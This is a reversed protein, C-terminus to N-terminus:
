EEFPELSLLVAEAHHRAALAAKWADEDHYGAEPLAALLERLAALLAPANAAAAAILPASAGPAAPVWALPEGGPGAVAVVEVDGFQEAVKRLPQIGHRLHRNVLIAWERSNSALSVV